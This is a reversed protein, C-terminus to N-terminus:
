KHVKTSLGSILFIHMWCCTNKLIMSKLESIEMIKHKYTEIFIKGKFPSSIVSEKLQKFM